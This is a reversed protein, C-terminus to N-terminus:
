ASFETRYSLTATGTIGGAIGASYVKLEWFAGSLARPVTGPCVKLAWTAADPCEMQAAIAAGVLVRAGAQGAPPEWFIQVWTPTGGTITVGIFDCVVLGTGPEQASYNFLFLGANASGNFDVGARTQARIVQTM